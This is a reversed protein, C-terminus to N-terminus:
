GLRSKKELRRLAAKVNAGRGIAERFVDGIKAVRRPMTRITYDLPDLRDNVEKWRLPASVPAGPRPRLSYAAVNTAGKKNQHVDFYVRGKRKGPLREFSTIKPLQEAALHAVIEGFTRAEEHTYKAGLPVFVHLGRGGSTKCVNPVGLEDFIDHLVLAVEVVKQFSIGEPDLDMVLYDPHDLSGVRANWPNMEISGLNAAYLLTRVNNCVLYRIDRGDSESRVVETKAGRPLHLMSVDKQFFSEGEIGHPHRNLSLPRNRLYPLIYKAMSRYYDIVDGKTYGEKPWYVKDLHTLGKATESEPATLASRM